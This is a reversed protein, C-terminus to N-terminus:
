LRSKEQCTRVHTINCPRYYIRAGSESRLAEFHSFGNACLVRYMTHAHSSKKIRVYIDQTINTEIYDVSYKILANAIGLKRFNEDVSLLYIEWGHLDLGQFQKLWVFGAKHGDYIATIFIAPAEGHGPFIMRNLKVTMLFQRYYGEKVLKANYAATSNFGGENEAQRALRFFFEFDAASGARLLLRGNISLRNTKYTPAFLGLIHIVGALCRNIVYYKVATSLGIKSLNPQISTKM